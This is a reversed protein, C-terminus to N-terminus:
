TVLQRALQTHRRCLAPLDIRTLEGHSVIIEGNIIAYNVQTPACFVLAAVPDHGGGAFALQHRSFGVMDAAKGPAIVGIDDRGLVAAGGRTALELSERATLAAADGERVRALLMAMRAELLMHGGDNSASGDVGLGIKVGTQRMQKIPALGSALRMNSSPCHAIGTGTRAFLNIAAKDLCVCHAHWVDAGM